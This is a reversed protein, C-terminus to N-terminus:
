KCVKFHTSLSYSIYLLYYDPVINPASITIMFAHVDTLIWNSGNYCSAAQRGSEITCGPNQLPPHQVSGHVFHTCMINYGHGNQNLIGM